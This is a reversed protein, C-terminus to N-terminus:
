VGGRCGTGRGGAPSLGCREVLTTASSGGTVGSCCRDIACERPRMQLNRVHSIQAGSRSLRRRFFAARFASAWACSCAFPSGQPLALQRIATQTSDRCAFAAFGVAVTAFRASASSKLSDSRRCVSRWRTPNGHPNSPQGFRSHTSPKACSRARRCRARLGHLDARHSLGIQTDLRRHGCRDPSRPVVM